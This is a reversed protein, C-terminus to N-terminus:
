LDQAKVRENSHNLPLLSDALRKIIAIYEDQEPLLRNGRNRSGM